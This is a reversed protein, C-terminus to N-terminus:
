NKRLIQENKLEKKQKMFCKSCAMGRSPIAILNRIDTEKGCFDCQETYTEKRNDKSM